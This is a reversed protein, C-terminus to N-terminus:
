VKRHCVATPEAATQWKSNSSHPILKNAPKPVTVPKSPPPYPRGKDNSSGSTSVKKTKSSGQIQAGKFTVSRPIYEIKNDPGRIAMGPLRSFGKAAGLPVRYLPEKSTDYDRYGTVYGTTAPAPSPLSPERQHPKSNSSTKPPTGPPKPPLIPRIIYHANNSGSAPSTTKTSSPPTEVARNKAVDSRPIYEITNDPGRIAMGPLRPFGKAAGLPVRYLPEKNTDYDRYGTVYGSTAPASASTHGVSAPLSSRPAHINPNAVQKPPPVPVSPPLSAQPPVVGTGSTPLGTRTSSSPTETVATEVRSRPIVAAVGIPRNGGMYGNTASAICPLVLFVYRIM